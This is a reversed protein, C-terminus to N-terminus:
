VNYFTYRVTLEEGKKIDQSTILNWKKYDYQHRLNFQNTMLLEAKVCNPTNSHNIFGGLPTRIIRDAIKIHSMGLNTGPTLDEKAFLGLGDIGSQGITLSEPLPKYMLGKKKRYYIKKQALIRERYKQYYEKNINPNRLRSWRGYKRWISGGTDLNKQEWIKHVQRIRDKNKQYYNRSWIKQKEKNKEYWNKYQQKDYM